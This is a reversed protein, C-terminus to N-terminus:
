VEVETSLARLFFPLPRPNLIYPAEDTGWGLRWSKFKGTYRDPAAGPDQQANDVPMADHDIVLSLTQSVSATTSVVRKPQGWSIGDPLQVEQVLPRVYAQFNLGAELDYVAIPLTINGQSDTTFEGLDLDGSRCTVIRSALFPFQWFKSAVGTSARAAFDLRFNPDMVELGRLYGVGPHFRDVIAWIERQVVGIGRIIGDTRWRMWAGVNEKRVKSLVAIGGDGTQVLGLAEQAFDTEMAATIDYAGSAFLDKAMFTLADSSYAGAIGDYTFERIANAARSIFITTQDFRIAPANAIGYGSSQQVSMNAGTLAGNQPTPAYFEGDATFIQLHNYSVMRRIEAVRDADATYKIADTPQGDGIWFNFPDYTTSGFITSPLDRGGAMWLRQEHRVGCRPYGRVGSFAQEQWDLTHTQWEPIVSTTIGIAYGPNIPGQILILHGKFNLWTNAHQGQFFPDSTLIGITGTVPSNTEGDTWMAIGPTYNHFPPRAATQIGDSYNSYTLISITFLGSPMRRIIRPEYDKHFVVMTDFSQVISLENNVIVGFPWPTSLQQLGARTSKIYITILGGSFVFVYQQDSSYIFPEIQYWNNTTWGNGASNDVHCLGPRRDCGGQPHIRVNEAIEVSNKWVNLDLRDRADASVMGGTFNTQLTRLM